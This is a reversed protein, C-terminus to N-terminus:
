KFPPVASVSVVSFFMHQRGAGTRKLLRPPYMQEEKGATFRKDMNLYVALPSTSLEM